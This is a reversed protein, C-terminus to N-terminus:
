SEYVALRNKLRQVEHSLSDVQNLLDFVAAIGESNIHLDKHLRVTKELNTLQTEEIFDEDEVKILEILGIEYISYIFDPAVQHSSCFTHIAVLNSDEM